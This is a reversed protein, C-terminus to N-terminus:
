IGDSGNVLLGCFYEDQEGFKDIADRKSLIKTEVSGDSLIERYMYPRDSCYSIRQYDVTGRRVKKIMDSREIVRYDKTLIEDNGYGDLVEYAFPEDQGSYYFKGCIIRRYLPYDLQRKIEELREFSGYMACIVDSLISSFKEVNSSSSSGISSTSSLVTTM